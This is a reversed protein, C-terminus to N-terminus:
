GAEHSQQRMDAVKHELNGWPRQRALETRLWNLLTAIQRDNLQHRFGPMSGLDPNAPHTIGDLVIRILNDPTDSYLNSNLVLSPRVGVMRPGKQSSHCAMCSGSFQRAGASGLNLSQQEADSELAAPQTPAPHQFSVLWHALAKLDRDSQRSLGVSIVPGMPGAAVGHEPSYGTRFYRKLQAENWSVPAPSLANLAPATWGEAIGGALADNGEKEAAALNRPSHCAGCHGLGEALYAGRNWMADHEPDPEREGPHLFMWNWAALGLRINFPFTMRTQPVQYSVAPQSMLFAYLDQLDENSSHTFATYPFAPYLYNGRRDIGYRMARLFAPYSWSGIGNVADPTINSTYITGFPTKMALGGSNPVGGSRTHCASCDGLAALTKGRAISDASFQTAAPPVIPAIEPQLCLLGVTVAVALVIAGSVGLWQNRRTM